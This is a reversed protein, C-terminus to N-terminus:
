GTSPQQLILKSAIEVPYCLCHGAIKIRRFAIKKSLLILKKKLHKNKLKASWHIDFATLLMRTYCGDLRKGFSRDIIQIKSGYLLVSKVLVLFICIRINHCHKSKQVKLLKNCASRSLARRVEFDKFLNSMWCGLYKFNQTILIPPSGIAYMQDQTEQNFQLM